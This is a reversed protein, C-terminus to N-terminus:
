ATILRAAAQLLPVARAVLGDDMRTLPGSVSVATRMAAAARVGVAVCRVGLEQEQEDIAYGRERVEAVAAYLRSATTITHPTHAALGVRGVIAQIEADDLQALLAKGVGSAHLEVRRGVETFMRVSHSSPAQAVYEAGDGSLVALNVTEGLERVLDALIREAGAGILRHAAAGLPVLRFGLAYRRDPLQRMYGCEVLTRLLRHVTPQPLGTIGSIEHISLHGGAEAVVDVLELARHLSQVGPLPTRRATATGSKTM